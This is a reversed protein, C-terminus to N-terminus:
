IVSYYSKLLEYYIKNTEIKELRYGQLAMIISDEESLRYLFGVREYVEERSGYSYVMGDM